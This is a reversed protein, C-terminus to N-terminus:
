RPPQSPCVCECTEHHTLFIEDIVWRVRLKQHRRYLSVDPSYKLVRGQIEIWSSKLKLTRPAVPPPSPPRPEGGEEGGDRREKM